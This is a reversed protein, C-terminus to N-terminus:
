NNQHVENTTEETNLNQNIIILIEEDSKGKCHLDYILPSLEDEFYLMDSKGYYQKLNGEKLANICRDLKVWRKNFGM